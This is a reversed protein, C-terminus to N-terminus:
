DGGSSRRQMIATVIDKVSKKIQKDRTALMCDIARHVDLLSLTSMRKPLADILKDALESVELNDGANKILSGFFQSENLIVEEAGFEETFKATMEGTSTLRVMM